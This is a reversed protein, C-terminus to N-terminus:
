VVLSPTAPAMPLVNAALITTAVVIGLYAQNTVTQSLLVPTAASSEGEAQSDLVGAMSNGVNGPSARCWVGPSAGSVDGARVLFPIPARGDGPGGDIAIAPSPGGPFEVESRSGGSAVCDILSNSDNRGGFGIM